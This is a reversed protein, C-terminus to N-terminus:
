EIISVEVVTLPHSDLDGARQCVEYIVTGEEVEELDEAVQSLALSGFYWGPNKDREELLIVNGVNIPSGGATLSLWASVTAGRLPVYHGTTEKPTEMQFEFLWAKTKPIHTAM